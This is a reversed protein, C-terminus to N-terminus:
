GRVIQLSIRGKKGIIGIGSKERAGGEKLIQISLPRVKM